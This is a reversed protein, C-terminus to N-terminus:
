QRGKAHTGDADPSPPPVDDNAPEPATARGARERALFEHALAVYADAGRSRADYLIVPV